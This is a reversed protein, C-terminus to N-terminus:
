IAPPPAGESRLWFTWREGSNLVEAEASPISARYGDASVSVRVAGPRIAVALSGDSEYSVGNVIVHSAVLTETGEVRTVITM